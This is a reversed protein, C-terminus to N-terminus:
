REGLLAESNLAGKHLRRMSVAGVDLTPTRIYGVLQAQENECIGSFLLYLRISPNAM